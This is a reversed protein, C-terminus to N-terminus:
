CAAAMCAAQHSCKINGCGVGAFRQLVADTLWATGCVPRSHAPLYLHLCLCVNSLQQFSAIPVPSHSGVVQIICGAPRMGDEGESQLLPALWSCWRVAFSGLKQLGLQVQHVQCTHPKVDGLHYKAALGESCFSVGCSFPPYLKNFATTLMAPAAHQLHQGECSCKCIM